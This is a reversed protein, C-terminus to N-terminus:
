LHAEICPRVYVGGVLLLRHYKAPAQTNRRGNLGKTLHGPQLKTHPHLKEELSYTHQPHPIRRVGDANNERKKTFYFAARLFSFHM